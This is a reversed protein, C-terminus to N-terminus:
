IQYNQMGNFLKMLNNENKVTKNEEINNSLLKKIGSEIESVRLFSSAEGKPNKIFNKSHELMSFYTLKSTDGGFAPFAFEYKKFLNLSEEDNEIKWNKKKLQLKFIEYLEEISYGPCDFHWMFRRKLGPQVAFVTNELNEKYGAFIIIIENPYKDIFLNIETLAENGFNDQPGNVLSYAEDVFLVKGLSEELLKRTKTATWGSYKDIFNERSVIKFFEGENESFEEKTKENIEEKMLYDEFNFNTYDNKIITFVFFLSILLSFTTLLGLKKYSFIIVIAITIFIFAIMWIGSNENNNKFIKKEKRKNNKIIGMANWIRSVKKATETKGVGPPGYFLANLMGQDDKTNVKDSYIFFNIQGVITEKVKQNGIMLDLDQLAIILEKPNKINKIYDYNKDIGENLIECLESINSM